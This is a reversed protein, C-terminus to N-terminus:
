YFKQQLDVAARAAAGGGRAAGQPARGGVCPHPLHRHHQPPAPQPRAAAALGAGGDLDGLVGGAGTPTAAPPRLLAAQRVAVEPGRVGAGACASVELYHKMRLTVLIPYHFSIKNM